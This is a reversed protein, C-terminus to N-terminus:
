MIKIKRWERERVLIDEVVVSFLFIEWRSLSTSFTDSQSSHKQGVYDCYQDFYRDNM